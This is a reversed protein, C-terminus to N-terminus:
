EKWRGIALIDVNFTAGANLQAGRFIQFFVNNVTTNIYHGIWCVVPSDSTGVRTNRISKQVNELSVFLGNPLAVSARISYVSGSSAFEGSAVTFSATGRCVAKGSHWKEWTWIGDTGTETVYDAIADTKEKVGQTEGSMGDLVANQADTFPSFDDTENKKFGAGSLKTNLTPSWVAGSLLFYCKVNVGDPKYAVADLPELIPNPLVECTFPTAAQVTAGTYVGQAVANLSAQGLTDILPNDKVTYVIEGSGYTGTGGAAVVAVRGIEVVDKEPLVKFLQTPGLSVGTPAYGRLVVKETGSIVRTQAFCAMIECVFGLLQRCTYKGGPPETPLVLTKNQVGDMMPDNAKLTLGCNAILASAFDWATIPFAADGTEYIKDLKTVIGMGRLILNNGNTDASDCIFGGMSVSQPTGEVTVDAYVRVEKGVFDIRDYAGDDNTIEVTLDPAIVTGFRIEDGVATRYDILMSDAVIRGAPITVLDFEDPDVIVELSPKTYIFDNAFDQATM